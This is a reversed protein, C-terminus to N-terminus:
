AEEEEHEPAEVTTLLPPTAASELVRLGQEPLWLTMAVQVFRGAPTKPRPSVSSAAKSGTAPLAQPRKPAPSAKSGHTANVMMAAISGKPVPMSATATPVPAAGAVPPPPSLAVPAGVTPMPAAPTAKPVPSTEVPAPPALPPLASTSDRAPPPMTSTTDGMGSGKGSGKYQSIFAEWLGQTENTWWSPFPFHAREGMAGAAPRVQAEFGDLFAPEFPVAAIVMCVGAGM